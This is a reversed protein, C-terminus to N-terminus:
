CEGGRWWSEGSKVPTKRGERQIAARLSVDLRAVADEKLGALQHAYVNLTMQPSSHGLLTAATRIDVGAGLLHSASLGRPGFDGRSKSRAPFAAGNGDKM